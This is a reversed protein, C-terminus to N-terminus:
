FKFLVDLNQSVKKRESPLVSGNKAELTPVILQFLVVNFIFLLLTLLDPSIPLCFFGRRIHKLDNEAIM